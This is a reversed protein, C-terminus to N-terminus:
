RVAMTAARRLLTNHVAAVAALEGAELGLLAVRAGRASLQRALSAGLGRAAGTVVVVAGDLALAKSM